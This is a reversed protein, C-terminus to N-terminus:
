KIKKMKDNQNNIVGVLDRGSIRFKVNGGFNTSNDTNNMVNQINRMGKRTLVGEGSNLRALVRDGTYSGGGVVGGTAFKPLSAFISAITAVISAIAAINAPFPLAAGSATGAAIAEANKASIMTLIQPLVQGISSIATGAFKLMEGETGGIAGGLSGFVSGVSDVAGGINEIKEQALQLDEQLTTITGDDNIHLDLKLKPDLETLMANLEAFKTKIDDFGIIGMKYDQVAQQAQSNADNLKNRKKEVPSVTESQSVTEFGNKNSYELDVHSKIHNDSFYKNAEDVTKQLTEKDILGDNFDNIADSVSKKIKNFEDRATKATEQAKKKVTEFGNKNDFELEVNDKINHQKFYSNAEDVTKQLTEKTILGSNFDNIADQVQKNVKQLAERDLEIQTKEKEEKGKKGKGGSGSKGKGGSSSGGKKNETYDIDAEVPVEIKKIQGNLTNDVADAVNEKMNNFGTAVTKLVNEIGNKWGSKVKNWDLTLVGEILDSLSKLSNFFLKLIMKIIEWTNKFTLALQQIGARVILSNNYLDIFGNIVKAVGGYVNAKLQTTMTSFGHNSSGFLSALASELERDANELNEMAEGWEGTQQSVVDLNTEVDALASVLEYGSKAGQKGFVQTLVEGVQQSQPPLEKLKNSIQQIAQVTSMDGSQLKQYMDEADIGVEELSGKLKDSFERIKTAGKSFLEMGADSFIGSRTNGIIAVLESASIGADNFAGSYQSIMDLMRGGDDAGGKFGKRIIELAENSSIGFQSTIGDVSSLVTDYDKGYTDACAKIKNRLDMLADGSLGTFQQTKQLSRDLESNYDFLAKGAGIIAGGALVYPNALMPGLKSLGSKDMMGSTLDKLGSGGGDSGGSHTDKQIQKLQEDYKKAAKSMEEWMKKGETTTHQGSVIMQEMQQRIDKIKKSLPVSSNQIKDFKKQIDELKSSKAGMDTLSKQVNKITPTLNDKGSLVLSLNAEAM